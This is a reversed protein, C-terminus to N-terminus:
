QITEEQPRDDHLISHQRRTYVITTDYITTKCQIIVQRTNDWVKVYRRINYQRKSGQIINNQTSKCTRNNYKTKAQRINYPITEEQRM